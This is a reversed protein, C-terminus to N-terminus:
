IINEKSQVSHERSRPGPLDSLKSAPCNMSLQRFWILILFCIAKSFDELSTRYHLIVLLLLISSLHLVHEDCCFQMGKQFYFSGRCTCMSADIQLDDIHAPLM